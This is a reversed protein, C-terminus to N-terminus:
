LLKDGHIFTFTYQTGNTRTFRCSRNLYDSLFDIVMETVGGVKITMSQPTGTRYFLFKNFEFKVTANIAPVVGSVAEESDFTSAAFTLVTDFQSAGFGLAYFNKSLDDGRQGSTCVPWVKLSHHGVAFGTLTFTADDSYQEPGDDITYVFYDVDGTYSVTVNRTQDSIFGFITIGTVATDCDIFQPEGDGRLTFDSLAVQGYNGSLLGREILCTGKITKVNVDEQDEFVAKFDIKSFGMMNDLMDFSSFDTDDSFRMVNSLSITYSLSQYDFKDWRGDGKTTVPVLTASPELSFDKACVFPVYVGAKRIMFLVDKGQITGTIM